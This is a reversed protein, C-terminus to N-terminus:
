TVSAVEETWYWACVISVLIQLLVWSPQSHETPGLLLFVFLVIIMVLSILAYYMLVVIRPRVQKFFKRIIRLGLSVGLLGSICAVIYPLYEAYLGDLDKQILIGLIHTILSVLLYFFQFVFWAGCYRLVTIETNM